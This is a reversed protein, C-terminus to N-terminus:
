QEQVIETVQAIKELKIKIGGMSASLLNYIFVIFVNIITGIIAYIIPFFIYFGLGFPMISHRPALANGAMSRLFLVIAGFPLMLVISLVFILIFSYVAVSGINIKKLQYM